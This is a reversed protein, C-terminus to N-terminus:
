IINHWPSRDPNPHPLGDSTVVTVITIGKQHRPLQGTDYTTRPVMSVWQPVLRLYFNVYSDFMMM